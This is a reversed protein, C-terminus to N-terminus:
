EEDVCNRLRLRIGAPVYGISTPRASDLSPRESNMGDPVGAETLTTRLSVSRRVNWTSNWTSISIPGPPEAAPAADPHYASPESRWSSAIGRGPKWNWLQFPVPVPAYEPGLGFSERRIAPGM